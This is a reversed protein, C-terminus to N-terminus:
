LGNRQQWCLLFDLSPHCIIQEAECNLEITKYNSFMIKTGSLVAVVGNNNIEVLKVNKLDLKTSAGDVLSHKIVKDQSVGVITDIEKNYM